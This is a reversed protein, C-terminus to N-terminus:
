LTIDFVKEQKITTKKGSQKDTVKGEYVVITKGNDERVSVTVHMPATYENLIDSYMETVGNMITAGKVYIEEPVGFSSKGNVYFNLCEIYQESGSSPYVVEFGCKPNYYLYIDYGVGVFLILFIGSFIVIIKKM